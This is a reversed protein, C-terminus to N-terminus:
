RQGQPMSKLLAVNLTVDLKAPDDFRTKIVAKKIVVPKAGKELRYVLNIAENASLGEVKVEAADEVFGGREEGKLQRIQSNKGKIGIEEIIKAPSDDSRSAAMRNALKQAGASAESLRQKLVLMEAVDAERAARKKMLLAVRTNAASYLLVIVIIAAIGMLW